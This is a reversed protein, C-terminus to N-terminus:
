YFQNRDLEQSLLNSHSWRTHDQGEGPDGRARNLILVAKRRNKGGGGLHIPGAFYPQHSRGGKQSVSTIGAPRCDKKGIPPKEFRLTHKQFQVSSPPSKGKGSRAGGVNRYTASSHGVGPGGTEANGPGWRRFISFRVWTRTAAPQANVV